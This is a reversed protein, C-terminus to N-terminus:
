LVALQIKALGAGTTSSKFKAGTALTGSNSNTFRGTGDKLAYVTDDVAVAVSTNVWVQGDKLVSVMEREAYRAVAASGIGVSEKHTHLAVGRFVDSTSATVTTTPQSAGGTVAAGSIVLAAGSDKTVTIENSSTKEASVTAVQTEIATVIANMTTAHDTTFTIPSLAISDITANFVNATILDVSFDIANANVVPMRAFIADAAESSLAAGFEIADKATLSEVRDNQIDAKMGAIAAGMERNYSTQSM